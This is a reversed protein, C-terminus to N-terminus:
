RLQRMAHLTGSCAGITKVAERLVDLYHRTPVIVMMPDPERLAQDYLRSLEWKSVGNSYDYFADSLRSVARLLRSLIEHRAPDTEVALYTELAAGWQGFRGRLQQNEALSKLADRSSRLNAPDLLLPTLIKQNEVLAENALSLIEDALKILASLLRDSDGHPATVETQLWEQRLAVLDTRAPARDIALDLLALVKGQREAEAIISQWFVAPSGDLDLASEPLGADVALLEARNRGPFIAALAERTRRRLDALDTM